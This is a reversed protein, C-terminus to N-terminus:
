RLPYGAFLRNFDDRDGGARIPEMGPRGEKPAKWRYPECHGDVFSLNCGQAHRDTPMSGWSANQTILFDWGGNWHSGENPEIFVWIKSHGPASLRSLKWIGNPLYPPPVDTNDHSRGKSNLAGFKAYSRIVAAKQGNGVQAKTQDAPCLYSRPNSIYRFLTGSTINTLDVDVSSNGLVWSGPLSRYYPDDTWNLPMVDNHDDIYMNWALQLQKLNNLCRIASGKAKARSLAPLLLSALIAIIAIVVLLEILTFGWRSQRRELVSCIKKM